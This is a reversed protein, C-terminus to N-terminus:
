GIDDTNVLLSWWNHKDTDGIAEHDDGIEGIILHAQHKAELKPHVQYVFIQRFFRVM